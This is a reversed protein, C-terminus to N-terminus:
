IKDFQEFPCTAPSGREQNGEFAIQQTGEDEDEAKEAIREPVPAPFQIHEHEQQVDSDDEYPEAERDFELWDHMCKSCIRWDCGCVTGCTAVVDGSCMLDSCNSCKCAAKLVQEHM